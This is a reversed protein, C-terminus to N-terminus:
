LAPPDDQHRGPMSRKLGALLLAEADEAAQDFFGSPWGPLSGDEAPRFPTYTSVGDTREAYLITVQRMVQGSADEAVRRRLRSVLYDSHTEVIMQRGSSAIALLFDALRQQVAPNLHLEPQELLLLSGAPAQLCMVLVPLLQSVGTGVSTLDLPMDVHPQRVALELGLRGRDATSFEQGIGLEAAWKNVAVGLPLRAQARGGPVPVQVMSRGNSQLVAACYEGKAGIYGGRGVPAATYVVQPDMRLPGLHLVRRALFEHVANTFERLAEPFEAPASVRAHVGVRGQVGTLIQSRHALMAQLDLPGHSSIRENLLLQARRGYEADGLDPQGFETLVAQIDDSALKTLDHQERASVEGLDRDRSQESRMAMLTLNQALEMWMETLYNVLDTERTARQPFGGRHWVAILERENDDVSLTGTYGAVEEGKLAARGTSTLTVPPTSGYTLALRMGQLLTQGPQEPPSGQLRVDWDLVAHGSGHQMRLRRMRNDRVPSSLGSGEGIHFVGGIGIQPDEQPAGASLTEQYTGLRVQDGNLPFAEGTAEGAQVVARISQLLTSKGASNEGVVVTLPALEVSADRVSKFNHMRWQRLSTGDHWVEAM